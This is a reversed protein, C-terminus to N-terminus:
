KGRKIKKVWDTYYRCAVYSTRKKVGDVYCTPCVYTRSDKSCCIYYEFNKKLNDCHTCICKECTEEKKTCKFKM